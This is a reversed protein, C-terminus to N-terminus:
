INEKKSYTGLENIKDKLYGRRINGFHKIAECMINNEYM